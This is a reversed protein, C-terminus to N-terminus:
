NGLTGGPASKPTNEKEIADVTKKPPMGEMIKPLQKFDNGSKVDSKAKTAM